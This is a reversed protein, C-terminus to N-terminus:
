AVGCIWDAIASLVPEADGIAPALTIATGPHRRRIAELMLPVDRKLHGGQAMFLPVLTIASVGDAALGAVAHDLDPQMLELFAIEVRADPRRAAVMEKLRRFPEAWQPDRAGHAFLIIGSTQTHTARDRM